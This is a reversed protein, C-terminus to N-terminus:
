PYHMATGSFRDVLLAGSDKDPDYKVPAGFTPVEILANVEDPVNKGVDIQNIDM